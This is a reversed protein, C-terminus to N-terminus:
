GSSTPRRLEEPDVARELMRALSPYKQVGEEMQQKWQEWALEQAERGMRGRIERLQRFYDTDSM